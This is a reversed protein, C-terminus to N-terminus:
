NKRNLAYNLVAMCSSYNTKTTINYPLTSIEVNKGLIKSLLDKGGKIFSIGGGTLHIPIFDPFNYQWSNFCKQIARAIMEIRSEVIANAVKMSVPVVTRDIMIDYTDLESPEICLVIKKLLQEADNFPIKLCKSLDASIFGGGLSFSTLNLVGEGRALMVTSTIYGIDVMLVYKDREEEDFLYLSQAYASCVFDIDDINTRALIKSVTNLFRNDALVFSLCATIKSEVQGIPNKVKNSEGLIYYVSGRNIITHTKLPIDVSDFLLDIDNKTIRKQKLFTKSVNKCVSFCFETPVGVVIKKIRMDCMKEAGSICSFIVDDLKSPEIFEGDMFGEYNEQYTCKVNITNNVDRAGVLVSIKQSGFDLIAVEKDTM